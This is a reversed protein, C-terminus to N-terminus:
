TSCAAAPLADALGPAVVKMEDQVLHAAADVAATVDSCTSDGSPMIMQQGDLIGGQDNVHKAALKAGKYMGPALSKLPGTFGALFGIKVDAAASGSGILAIMIAIAFFYKKIPSM